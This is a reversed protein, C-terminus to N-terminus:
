ANEELVISSGDEELVQDGGEEVVSAGPTAGGVTDNANLKGRVAWNVPGTNFSTVTLRFKSACGEPVEVIQTGSATFTDVTQWDSDDLLDQQLAITNAGADIDIRLIFDTYATWVATPTDQAAISGSLATAM